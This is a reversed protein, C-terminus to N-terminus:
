DENPLSITIVPEANDGPGVVLKFKYIRQRGAGQIIVEFLATSENVMQKRARAMWLMDHMIGAYSNSYRKNEVAKRVLEFVTRTLAIPYKFHDRCVRHLAPDDMASLDVLDGDAILQARTTIHIPEGFLETLSQPQNTM